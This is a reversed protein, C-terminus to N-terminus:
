RRTAFTPRKSCARPSPRSARGLDPPGRLAARPVLQEVPQVAATECAAAAGGGDGRASTPRRDSASTDCRATASDGSSRRAARSRHVVRRQRREDRRALVRPARVRRGAGVWAAQGPRSRARWAAILPPAACTWAALSRRQGAAAAGTGRYARRAGFVQPVVVRAIARRARAEGPRERELMQETAALRASCRRPDGNRTCISSPSGGCSDGRYTFRERFTSATSAPTACPRSGPTPTTPPASRPPPTSITSLPRRPGKGISALLADLPGKGGRRRASLAAVPRSAHRASRATEVARYVMEVDIRDPLGPHPRRVAGAALRIRNCPSCPLISGSSEIYRIGPAYRAPDSPGFVAVVPTGVAAALHMPGTDGTVLVDLQQLVAALAPLTSRSGVSRRREGGSHAGSPDVMVRDSGGGTLVITRGRATALRLALERSGNPVGSNSPADAASTFASSHVARARRASRAPAAASLPLIEPRRSRTRPPVDLVARSWGSRM